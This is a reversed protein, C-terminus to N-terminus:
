KELTQNIKEIKDRIDALKEAVASIRKIEGNLPKGKHSNILTVLSQIECSAQNLRCVENNFSFPSM